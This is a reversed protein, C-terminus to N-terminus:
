YRMSILIDKYSVWSKYNPLIELVIWSNKVIGEAGLFASTMNCASANAGVAKVVTENWYKIGRPNKKFCDINASFQNEWTQESYPKWKACLKRISFEKHLLYRMREKLTGVAEAM